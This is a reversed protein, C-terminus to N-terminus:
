CMAECHVNDGNDPAQVLILFRGATVVTPYYAGISVVQLMRFDEKQLQQLLNDEMLLLM